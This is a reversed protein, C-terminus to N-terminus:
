AINKRLKDQIITFLEDVNCELWTSTLSLPTKHSVNNMKLLIRKLGSSKILIDEPHKVYILLFMPGRIQKHMKLKSIENWQIFQGRNPGINIKIGIDNIILGLKNDILKTLGSLCGLGSSFILLFICVMLFNRNFGDPLMDVKFFAWVCVMFFGFAIVTLSLAKIKSVKIRIEDKYLNM